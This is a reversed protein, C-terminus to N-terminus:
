SEELEVWDALAWVKKSTWPGSVIRLMVPNGPDADTLVEVRTGSAVRVARYSEVLKAAAPNDPPTEPGGLRTIERLTDRDLAVLLAASLGDGLTGHHGIVLRGAAPRGLWWFLVALAIVVAVTAGAAAGFRRPRPPEEASTEVADPIAESPAEAAFATRCNTCRLERGYYREHVQM